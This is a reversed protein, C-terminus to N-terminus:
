NGATTCKAAAPESEQVALEFKPSEASYSSLSSDTGSSEDESPSSQDKISAQDQGCVKKPPLGEELNDLGSAKNSQSPPIDGTQYPKRETSTPVPLSAHM